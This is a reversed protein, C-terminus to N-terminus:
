AAASVAGIGPVVASAPVDPVLWPRLVRRGGAGLREAADLMPGPSLTGIVVAEADDHREVTRVGLEDIARRVVWENRGSEAVCVSRFPRSAFAAHLAERAHALGIFREWIPGRMPTRRQYAITRRLDRLGEGIGAEARETRAIARYRARVRRLDARREHEPAYRQTVWATNRVLRALIVNMDRGEGSKHHQVRFAPDFEVRAGALLFRAALDYEEAYYHFRHDYGGARLFADRRIAVGCGIFVEPLGGSERRGLAPLHIDAMVAATDAGRAALSRAIADLDAGPEPHSDDDLMVIWPSSAARVGANRAAAGENRPRVLAVVSLGNALTRPVRVPQESDNDVIVVEGGACPPLCAGLADLTALLRAHRDRTPLVFSLAHSSAVFRRFPSATQPVSQM